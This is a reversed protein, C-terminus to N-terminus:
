IVACTYHYGCCSMREGSQTAWNEVGSATQVCIVCCLMLYLASLNCIEWCVWLIREVSEVDFASSEPQLPEATHIERQPM